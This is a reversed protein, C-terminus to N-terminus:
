ALLLRAVLMGALCAGGALFMTGLAYAVAEVTSGKQILNLADLAYASYTTFGGLFGTMAFLKASDNGPAKALLAAACFGMALSGALNVTLTGWPFGTGLARGM